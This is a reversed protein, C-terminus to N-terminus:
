SREAEYVAKETQVKKREGKLEMMGVKEFENIKVGASKAHAVMKEALDVGNISQFGLYNEVWPAVATTGGALKEELIVTKLGSRVGYIGAALGAAGAGVIVLDYSDM